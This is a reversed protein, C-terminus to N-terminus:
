NPSQAPPQLKGLIPPRRCLPKTLLMQVAGIHREWFGGECYCLYFEWLRIFGDGFGQARVEDLRAFFRERWLRLTRAYHPGIEELHFLRLDTRRRVSDCIAAVSPLCGGPFVFRKIFDVRRKAAEYDQDNITIAQLLMLGEPKLLAACKAFYADFYEFGVAEIMEVSVLKDYAGELDRYDKELLTIRDSLGEREIRRAAFEFQRRSITTTTVRCGFRRAAHIALGGWGTGIELLHDSPSLALKRCIRDYKAAQADDLSAAEDEFVACSYAMTEDLFLAYFENGLDYHAAINERSARPTNRRLFHFLADAPTRLWAPGRRARELVARNLVMLRVLATLDDCSWAGQIYVEAAGNVGGFAVAPYFRPDLVTIAARLGAPTDEDGFVRRGGPEIIELRGTRMAEFRSLFLRRALSQLWGPRAAATRAGSDDPIISVTM